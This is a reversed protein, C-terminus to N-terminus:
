STLSQAQDFFKNEFCARSRRVDVEKKPNSDVFRVCHRSPVCLTTDLGVDMGDASGWVAKRAASAREKLMQYRCTTAPADADGIGDLSTRVIIRKVLGFNGCHRQVLVPSAHLDEM